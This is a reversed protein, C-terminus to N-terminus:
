QLTHKDSLDISQYALASVGASTAQTFMNLFSAFPSKCIFMKISTKYCTTPWPYGWTSFFLSDLGFVSTWCCSQLYKQKCSTDTSEGWHLVSYWQSICHCHLMHLSCRPVKKWVHNSLLVITFSTMNQEEPEELSDLAFVSWLTKLTWKATCLPLSAVLIQDSSTVFQYRTRKRRYTFASVGASVGAAWTASTHLTFMHKLSPVYGIQNHDKSTCFRCTASAGVVVSAPEHKKPLRCSDFLQFACIPRSSLAFHNRWNQRANRWSRHLVM